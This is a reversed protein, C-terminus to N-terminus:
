KFYNHVNTVMIPTWKNINVYSKKVVYLSENTTSYHRKFTQTIVKALYPRNKNALNTSILNFKIEVIPGYSGIDDLFRSINTHKSNKSDSVGPELFHLFACIGQIYVRTKTISYSETNGSKAARLIHGKKYFKGPKPIPHSYETILNAINSNMDKITNLIINSILISEMKGFRIRKVIGLLGNETLHADQRYFIDISHIDIDRKEKKKKKRTRTRNSRRRRPEIVPVWRYPTSLPISLAAM